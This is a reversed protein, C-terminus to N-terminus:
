DPSKVFKQYRQNCTVIALITPLKATFKYICGSCVHAFVGSRVYMCVVGM